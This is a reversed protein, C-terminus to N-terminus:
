ARLPAPARPVQATGTDIEVGNAWRRVAGVPSIIVGSRLAPNRIWSLDDFGAIVATTAWLDAVSLGDAVVTASAVSGAPRGTRPDIIHAGREATGSTAVAGNRVQVTAALSGARRPDAIGVRWTWDSEPATFLQMDGGIDLGAAHMGPLQLLPSLLSRAVTEVAWGKVYGTPDFWGRYWPDFLGGTDHKANLCARRVIEVREDAGELDIGGDRLRSVDSDARYASFVRDLDHLEDFCDRVASELASSAEDAAEGDAILHISAVTGMVADTRVVRHRNTM